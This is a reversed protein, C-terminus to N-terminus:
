MGKVWCEAYGPIDPYVDEVGSTLILKKGLWKKGASTVEFSGDDRKKVTEIEVDEVTVTGYREFDKKAADRFEKPDRHDWTAVTHMHRSEANRYKGSDFLLTKHHQRVISAAASLGAPGGGIIIIDYESAM